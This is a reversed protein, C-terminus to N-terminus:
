KKNKLNKLLNVLELYLVVNVSKDSVFCCYYKTHDM